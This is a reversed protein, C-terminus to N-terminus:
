APKGGLVSHDTTSMNRGNPDAVIPGASCRGKIAIGTVSDISQYLVALISEGYAGVWFVHDGDARLDPEGLRLRQKAHLQLHVENKRWIKAPRFLFQAIAGSAISVLVILLLDWM